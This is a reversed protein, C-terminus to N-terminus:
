FNHPNQFIRSPDYRSKLEKLRRTLDKGFYERHARDSSFRSDSFCSFGILENRGGGLSRYISEFFSLILGKDDSSEKEGIMQILLLGDRPGFSSTRPNSLHKIGTPQGEFSGGMLHIEILWGKLLDTLNKYEDSFNYLLKTFNLITSFNLQESDKVILSKAYFSSNYTTPNIGDSSLNRGDALMKASDIWNLREISEDDESDYGFRDTLSRYIKEFRGYHGIYSGKLQWNLVFQNSEVKNNNNDDDDDVDTPVLSINWRIGLSPPASEISWTQFNKLASAATLYDPFRYNTRFHIVTRPESETRLTMSTLIGFSSGAGRMAFFLDSNKSESVKVIEGTAKVVEMEIVQDQFLGWLRSSFGFGGCLAHGSVGIYPESSHGIAREREALSIDLDGLRLGAGINVLEGVRGKNNSEFRFHNLNSVDIVLSNDRTGFSSYSHGGSRTVIVTRFLNACRIAISIEVPSDPYFITLPKHQIALNYTLSANHYGPQNKLFLKSSSSLNQDSLNIQDKLCNTLSTYSDKLLSIKTSDLQKIPQLDFFKSLSDFTSTKILYFNLNLIIILLIKVIRLEKLM